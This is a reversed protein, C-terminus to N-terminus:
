VSLQPLTSFNLKPINMFLKSIKKKSDLKRASAMAIKFATCQKQSKKEWFDPVIFYGVLMMKADNM